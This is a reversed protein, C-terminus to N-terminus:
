IIGLTNLVILVAVGIILGVVVLIIIIKKRSRSKYEYAQELQEVGEEVDLDAHMVHDDAERLMVGQEDTLIKLDDMAGKLNYLDDVLERTQMNREYILTDEYEYNSDQSLLPERLPVYSM